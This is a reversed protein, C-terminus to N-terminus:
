DNSRGGTSLDIGLGAAAKELYALTQDFAGNLTRQGEGACIRSWHAAIGEPTQQQPPLWVGRTEVIRSVAFSGGGAGLIVRSPARESCLFLAAPAVTEPTLLRAAQAPLLDETMRTAATPALANVRVDYKGGELALVNMLGVVAMKAAAYASQGFNGYLGSASTTMVIRGYGQECMPAWVARTCYVSGMLHVELVSRFDEQALKAFTKDRLIGANNVLIDVRGFADLADAVMADVQAPDTVDAGNAIAEGGAAIIEEVVTAAAGSDAGIGAVDGGRDNVVVRAGRAALALAQVRGLGHGAGTVIAVRGDFGIAM